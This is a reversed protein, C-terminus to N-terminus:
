ADVTLGTVAAFKSIALFFAANVLLTTEQLTLLGVIMDSSKTNDLMEFFCSCEQM